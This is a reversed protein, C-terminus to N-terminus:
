SSYKGPYWSAIEKEFSAIDLCAKRAEQFEEEAEIVARLAKQLKVGDGVRVICVICRKLRRLAGRAARQQPTLQVPKKKSLKM